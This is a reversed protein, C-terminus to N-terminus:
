LILLSLFHVTVYKGKPSRTIIIEVEKLKNNVGEKVGDGGENFRGGGEEKERKDSNKTRHRGV